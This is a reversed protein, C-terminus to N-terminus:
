GAFVAGGAGAAVHHLRHDFAIEEVAYSEALKDVQSQLFAKCMTVDNIPGHLTITDSGDARTTTIASFRQLLERFNLLAHWQQDVDISGETPLFERMGIAPIAVGLSRLAAVLQGRRFTSDTFVHAITYGAVASHSQASDHTSEEGEEVFTVTAALGTFSIKSVLSVWETCQTVIAAVLEAADVAGDAGRPTARLRNLMETPPNGSLRCLWTGAAVYLQELEIQITHGLFIGLGLGPTTAVMAHSRWRRLCARPEQQGARLFAPWAICICDDVGCEGLCASVTTNLQDDSVADAITGLLTSTAWANFKSTLVLHATPPIYAHSLLAIAAHLGFGGTDRLLVISLRKGHLNTWSSGNHPAMPAQKPLNCTHAQTHRHRHTRRRPVITHITAHIHAPSPHPITNPRLGSILQVCHDGSISTGELVSVASVPLGYGGFVCRRAIVRIGLNSLGGGKTSTAGSCRGGTACM